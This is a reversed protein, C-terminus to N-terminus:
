NRTLFNQNGKINKFTKNLDEKPVTFTLDTEGEHKHKSSDHRRYYRLSQSIPKFIKSAIGPTDKIGIISIKAQKLDHTFSVVKKDKIPIKDEKMVLAGKRSNNFTSKVYIKINLQNAMEVAKSQLVKSGLSSMELM